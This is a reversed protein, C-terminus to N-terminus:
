SWLRCGNRALLVLPLLANKVPETLGLFGDLLVLECQLCSASFELPCEDSVSGKLLLEGVQVKEPVALLSAPSSALFDVKEPFTEM